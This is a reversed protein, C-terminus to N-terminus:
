RDEIAKGEQLEKLLTEVERVNFNNAAIVGDDYGDEYGDNYYELIYNEELNDRM